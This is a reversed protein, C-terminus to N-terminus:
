DGGRDPCDCQLECSSRGVHVFSLPDYRQHSRANPIASRSPIGVIDSLFKAEWHPYFFGAEKIFKNLLGLEIQDASAEARTLQAVDPFAVELDIIAAPGDPDFGDAEYVNVTALAYGEWLFRNGPPNLRYEILDIM